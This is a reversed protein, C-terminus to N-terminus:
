AGALAHRDDKRRFGADPVDRLEAQGDGPAQQLRPAPHHFARRGGALMQPDSLNVQAEIVEQCAGANVTKPVLAGLESLRPLMKLKGLLGTPPKIELLSEIRQGVEEVSDVGLAMATRRYSGYANILLPVPSNRPNEFFLAPGGAKSVRDTIEAIELVPDVEAAIRKLEGAQELASVFDALCNYTYAM